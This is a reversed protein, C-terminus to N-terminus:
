IATSQGSSTAGLARDYVAWTARAAADWSFAAARARGPEPDPPDDLLSLIARAADAPDSPDFYRPWADGVERLVPLDSAAVPVGRAMAELLPLGFGEARTPVAAVSAISWLGELEEDSVWGTFVIREDVGLESALARLEADYPEAHGALVLRTDTPLAPMARVLLAQNKHPRKAGVCVLVRDSGLAFRNRIEVAPLPEPRDMRGAGHPIVTFAEPSLGLTACIDDRAAATGTILADAHRAARPIILRMALSTVRNFTAHHIFNVDHLTIVHAVGQIRIPAISALSHVVDANLRRSVRGLVIQEAVLRRRREGDDCPLEYVGIGRSPWGADRLGAAGRRTTLVTLAADERAERLAPALGRLYTEPGGSVGPDLFLANLVVKSARSV